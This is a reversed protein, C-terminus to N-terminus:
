PLDGPKREKIEYPKSGKDRNDERDKELTSLPAAGASGVGSFPLARDSARRAAANTEADRRQEFNERNGAVLHLNDLASTLRSIEPNGGGSWGKLHRSVTFIETATFGAGKNSIIAEAAAVLRGQSEPRNAWLNNIVQRETEVGSQADRANKAAAIERLKSRAEDVGQAAAKELWDSAAAYSQPVGQGASYLMGLNFQADPNGSDAAKRLWQASVSFDKPVGLGKGHLMGLANQAYGNGQAAAKRYWEAAQVYDQQVGQGNYYLQGLNYQAKAVGQDAAKRYWQAAVRFDQTVGKGQQHFLGLMNQADGYGQEAAKRYWQAAVVPDRVVGRGKDYLQAVGYQSDAHGQEALSRLERMATVYDQANYAALGRHFAAQDISQQAQLAASTLGLSIALFASITLQKHFPNRLVRIVAFM